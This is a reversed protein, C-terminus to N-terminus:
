ASFLDLYRQRNAAVSYREEVTLRGARGLQQRLRPNDILQSLRAFWEEHTGALFGNEGDTIIQRNVGVPSMVAPIGIGMYQLGKLGCKGRTWPNDPLPMIGIDFRQLDQVETAAQWLRGTLHLADNKYSPDGIVEFRLREGYKEQLRLLVPVLWEFHKITSFSGTWGITIQQQSTDTKKVRYQDTDITTPIVTVRENYQRAYDALYDNGAVVTNALSILTATKQPRKLRGLLGLHASEDPLWIADDFDFIVPVGSAALQREIRTTGVMIAERQIFIYDYQRAINIDRLRQRLSKLFIAGKGLYHGPQYLIRDDRASILYSLDCRIGQSELYPFYQEFRYRQSPSRNPRHMAIFLVKKM